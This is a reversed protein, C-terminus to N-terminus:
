AAREAKLQQLQAAFEPQKLYAEVETRLYRPVRGMRHCPVKWRRITIPHVNLLEAIEQQNLFREEHDTTSSQARDEGVGMLIDIARERREANATMFAPVLRDLGFFTTQGGGTTSQKKKSVSM